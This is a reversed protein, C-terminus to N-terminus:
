CRGAPRPSSRRSSPAAPDARGSAAPRREGLGKRARPVFHWNLREEDKFEFGAKGQQEPTLANWFSMAATAMAYAAAKTDHSHAHEGDHAPAPSAVLASLGTFVCIVSRALRPHSPM